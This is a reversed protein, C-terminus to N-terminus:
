MITKIRTVTAHCSSDSFCSLCLRRSERLWSDTGHMLRRCREAFIPKPPADLTSAPGTHHTSGHMGHVRLPLFIGTTQNTFTSSEVTMPQGAFVGATGSVSARLRLRPRSPMEASLVHDLGPWLRSQTTPGFRVKRRPRLWWPLSVKRRPRDWWRARAVRQQQRILFFSRDISLRQQM